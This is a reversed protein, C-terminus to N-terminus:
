RRPLVTQLAQAVAARILAPGTLVSGTIPGLVLTRQRGLASFARRAVHAPNQAGPPNRGFGSREAFRSRTATPCLALVDVPRGTLEAGLAETLSLDFAKSAAYAALRPVPLFAAGSSVVILGARRGEAEARAIMGPLLRRTLVLPAMVNVSVTDRLTVEPAALFDGFPGLGANCILLDINFREAATLLTDLGHDTALDARLTEVLRGAGLTQALQLLAAENRGTLLLSTSAPLAHAFAEGIGSTAGTILAARPLNQMFAMIPLHPHLPLRYPPRSCSKLGM